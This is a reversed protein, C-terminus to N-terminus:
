SLYYKNGGGFRLLAQTIVTFAATLKNDNAERGQTAEESCIYM